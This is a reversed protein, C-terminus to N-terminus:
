AGRARPAGDSLGSCIPGRQFTRDGYDLLGMMFWPSVAYPRQDSTKRLEAIKMMNAKLKKLGAVALSQLLKPANEANM